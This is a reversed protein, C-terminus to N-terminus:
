QFFPSLPSIIILNAGDDILLSWEDMGRVGRERARVLLVQFMALVRVAELCLFPGTRPPAMLREYNRALSFCRAVKM